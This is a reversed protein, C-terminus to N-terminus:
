DAPDEQQARPPAHDAAPAQASRERASGDLAATWQDMDDSAENSGPVVTIDVDQDDGSDAAGVVIAGAPQPGAKAAIGHKVLDAAFSSSPRGPPTLVLDLGSAVSLQAAVQVAAEGGAGRAYHAVAAAPSAPLPRSVMVLQTTGDQGLADAPAAGSALVITHPDSANVYVPLEASVDDSFRSQVLAIVGQASARSALGQLTSMTQTMTLLDGGLGSGVELRGATQHPVLHSLVLESNPRSAAIRAGVDVLPGATALDHVLVAVRHAAAKGLLARDAEAIDREMIKPPYIVRLLPGAM